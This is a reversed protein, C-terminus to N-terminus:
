RSADGAKQQIRLIVFEAISTVRVAKLWPGRPATGIFAAVSTPVGPISRGGAPVEEIRIGPHNPDPTM